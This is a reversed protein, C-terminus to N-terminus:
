GQNLGLEKQKKKTLGLSVIRHSETLYYKLDDDMGPS